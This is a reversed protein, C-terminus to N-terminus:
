HSLNQFEEDDIDHSLKGAVSANLKAALTSNIFQEEDYKELMKEAEHTGRFRYKQHYDEALWFTELMDITTASGEPKVKEATEKQEEDHYFIRSAYQAKAKREHNHNEFFVELIDEYSIEEPNYDMQVTETHKGLSHYTPNSKNGGTYGVRTRYVGELGGFLAEVGWFCGMAVTATKLNEPVERDLEYEDAIVDRIDESKRM